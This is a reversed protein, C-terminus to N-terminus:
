ERELGVWWWMAVYSTVCSPELARRVPVCGHAIKGEELLLLLVRVLVM